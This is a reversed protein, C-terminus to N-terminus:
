IAYRYAPEYDCCRLAADVRGFAGESVLEADLQVVFDTRNRGRAIRIHDILGCREDPLLAKCLRHLRKQEEGPFLDELNDGRFVNLRLYNQPLLDEPISFKLISRMAKTVCVTKVQLAQSMHSARGTYISQYM